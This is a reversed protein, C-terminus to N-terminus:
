NQGYTVSTGAFPEDLVWMCWGDCEALADRLEDSEAYLRARDLDDWELLILTREPDSESTFVREDRCGYAIRADSDQLLPHAGATDAATLCQIL